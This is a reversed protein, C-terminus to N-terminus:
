HLRIRFLIGAGAYLSILVGMPARPWSKGIAIERWVLGAVVVLFAADVIASVLPSFWPVAILIRGALWLTFLLM